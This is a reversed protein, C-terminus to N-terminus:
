PAAAWGGIEYALEGAAITQSTGDRVDRYNVRSMPFLLGDDQGPVIGANGAYHSPAWLDDVLHDDATPCIYTSVRTRVAAANAPHDFRFDFDYADQLTSQEIQPLVLAQWTHLRQAATVSGCTGLVGPPFRGHVDHYNALALGIQRLNNKCSAARAAERAAQVAPLLLAILHRHDRHRGLARRTHLSQAAAHYNELRNTM